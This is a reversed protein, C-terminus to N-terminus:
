ECTGESLIPVTKKNKSYVSFKLGYIQIEARMETYKCGSTNFLKVCITSCIMRPSLGGLKPTLKPVPLRLTFSIM